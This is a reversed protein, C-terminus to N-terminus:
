QPLGPVFVESYRVKQRDYIWSSKLGIEPRTSITRSIFYERGIELNLNNYNLDHHSRAHRWPVSDPLKLSIVASPELKTTGSSDDSEFWTYNLNVDWNDHFFYSGM